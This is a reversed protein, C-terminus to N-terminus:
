NPPHKSSVERLTKRESHGCMNQPFSPYKYQHSFSIRLTLNELVPNAPSKVERSLQTALELPSSVSHGTQIKTRYHELQCSQEAERRAESM